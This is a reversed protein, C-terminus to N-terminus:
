DLNQIQTGTPIKVQFQDSPLEVNIDVKDVTLLLQIGDLPRKIFVRTPYKRGGFDRYAFYTVQGELNGEKDYLDQSYPLLDDRHFTVVRIPTDRKSGPPAHRTISLVYEPMTYLHKKAADEVTETDSIVTYSDDPDLGRVLMADFFFGPRLNEFPNDSKKTVANSGKIAKNKSPIVLTFSKGDSAMDFVSVGFYRGAVRLMEPKGMVIYGTCSPYDKAVGEKSKLLTAQMEVKATLTNLDGWRQNVREVLNEPSVSETITPTRPVPLKRTTPLISCGSVLFTLGM